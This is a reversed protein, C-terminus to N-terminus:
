PKSYRGFFLIVGSKEEILAFLFPRDCIFEAEMTPMMMMRSIMATAAAAETGEENVEIYAKHVVDSFAMSKADVMGSIDVKSSDFLDSVGLAPLIRSLDATETFTFKPLGLDVKTKFSQRVERFIETMREPTMNNELMELGEIEDPRVILMSSLNGRYPISVASFKEKDNKLYRLDFKKRMMDVKVTNSSSVHFDTKTTQEATFQKEWKGKFYIANTLVLTTDAGITGEVLLDKIKDKTQEEVWKNITQRCEDPKEGFNMSEIGSKYLKKSKVVFSELIKMENRAFLKNAVNLTLGEEVNLSVRFDDTLKSFADHAEDATKDSMGLAQLIQSETNGRAGACALMLASTVSYPSFLVNCGKSQIKKYVNWSFANLGHVFSTGEDAMKQQQVPKSLFM